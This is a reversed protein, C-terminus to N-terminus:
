KVGDVAEYRAVIKPTRSKGDYCLIVADHAMNGKGDSRYTMALGEYRNSALWKSIEPRTKAGAKMAALVMSLGDHQALAFADAKVGFRKEYTDSFAKVKPDDESIPSAASEACVGALAEPELLAATTPQHMASGAVIPLKMGQAKAQRVALATPGSHLHLLLGDAGAAKARELAPQLDKLKPSLAEELVPTVGLKGLEDVLHAHGSQGYATTQYLIAPRKMGLTEVAYRAQAVKVVADTPFFRFLSKFGLETLKATGSITIMPIKAREAIPAMALMQTGFISMGLAVPQNQSMARRLATVAAEPSTSTDAVDYSVTVGSPPSDLAMLAGNRQATGEIALFGTIPVLVSIHAPQDDARVQSSLLSAACLSLLLSRLM